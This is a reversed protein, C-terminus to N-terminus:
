KTRATLVGWILNEESNAVYFGLIKEEEERICQEVSILDRDGEKRKVSLRYVDSKPHLEGFRRKYSKWIQNEIWIKWNM